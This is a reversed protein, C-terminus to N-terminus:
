VGNETAARWHFGLISINGLSVDKGPLGRVTDFERRNFFIHRQPFQGETTNVPSGITMSLKKRMEWMNPVIRAILLLRM